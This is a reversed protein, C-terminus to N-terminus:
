VVSKRDRYSRAPLGPIFGPLNFHFFYYVYERGYLLRAVYALWSAPYPGTYVTDFDKLARAYKLWAVINLPFTLRFIREALFGAPMGMTVLDVNPPPALNGKFSFLTVRDGKKALQDALQWMVRDAGQFNYLTTSILAIRL